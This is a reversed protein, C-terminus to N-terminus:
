QMFEQKPRMFGTLNGGGVAIQSFCNVNFELKIFAGTPMKKKLRALTAPESRGTLALALDQMGPNHGVLLVSGVDPSVSHVMTLMTDASAHYLSRKHQTHWNFNGAAMLQDLTQTARLATSCLVLGPEFAAEALKRGIFSAAKEGRKNLQRNHDSMSLASWDSKAHRLLYVKKPVWMGGTQIVAYGFRGSQSAQLILIGRLLAISM